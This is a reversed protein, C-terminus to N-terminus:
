QVSLGDDKFKQPRVFSMLAFLLMFGLFFLGLLWTM